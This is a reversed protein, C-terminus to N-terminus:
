APAAALSQLIAVAEDVSPLAAVEGAVEAARAAYRDERLLARVADAIGGPGDLAIGAELEHVRRANDPQDAFLPLVALPVGAALGGLVTGSGGHCVMAAAHPLVDAQPVWREARV